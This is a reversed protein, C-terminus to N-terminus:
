KAASALQSPPAAHYVQQWANMVNQQTVPLAPVAVYAPAKKGLLAYGALKAETQGQDFPRQAGLDKVDGGQAMNIAVNEGLDQTAITLNSARGTARAAALVGEAPVDWVAWIGKLTPHQALMANAAKEADGAFDLGAIGQKAVVNIGPFYKQMTSTFGQYRQATVFFDADHFIVGIDGKGNMKQGMLLASVVGNGYNDASVDSVYDKGAVFGKPVNDMFVLKVGQNVAKRYAGATAVPDTPISVIIDPKKTLVTEIDSVQKDPKFNADTVAIVKIGLEAFQAKLGNVQATSWDNGGYHLVIAATANKAKIKAIEDPSLTIDSAPSPTEGNPGKALVQSKLQDLAAQAKSNAVSQAGGSTASGGTSSKNSSGCAAVVVAALGLALLAFVNGWRASRM